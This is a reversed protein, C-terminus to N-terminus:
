PTCFNPALHPFCLSISLVSASTVNEGSSETKGPLSGLFMPDKLQKPPKRKQLLRSCFFMRCSTNFIHKCIYIVGRGIVFVFPRWLTIVADPGLVVRTTHPFLWKSQIHSSYRLVDELLFCLVLDYQLSRSAQFCSYDQVAEWLIPMSKIGSECRETYQPKGWFWTKSWANVAKGTGNLWASSSVLYHLKLPLLEHRNVVHMICVVYKLCSCMQVSNVRLHCVESVSAITALVDWRRSTRWHVDLTSERKPSFKTSTGWGSFFSVWALNSGNASHLFNIKRSDSM